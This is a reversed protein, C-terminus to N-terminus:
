INVNNLLTTDVNCENLIYKLFDYEKRFPEGFRKCLLTIIIMYKKSKSNEIDENCEFSYRALLEYFDGNFKVDSFGMKLSDLAIQLGLSTCPSINTRVYRAVDVLHQNQSYLDRYYRVDSKTFWLVSTHDFGKYPLKFELYKYNKLYDHLEYFSYSYLFVQQHYDRCSKITTDLNIFSVFLSDKILNISDIRINMSSKNYYTYLEKSLDVIEKQKFTIDSCSFFIVCFVSNIILKNM